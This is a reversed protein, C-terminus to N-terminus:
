CSTELPMGDGLWVLRLVVSWGNRTKVGLFANELNKL